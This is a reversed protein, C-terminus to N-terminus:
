EDCIPHHLVTEREPCSPFPVTLATSHLEELDSRFYIWGLIVAPKPIEILNSAKRIQILTFREIV